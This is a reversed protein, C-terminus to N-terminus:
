EDIVVVRSVINTNVSKRIEDFGLNLNNIDKLV